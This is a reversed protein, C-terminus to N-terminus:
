GETFASIVGPVGKVQRSDRCNLFFGVQGDNSVWTMGGSAPVKNEIHATGGYGGAGASEHNLRVIVRCFRRNVALLHNSRIFQFINDIGTLSDM